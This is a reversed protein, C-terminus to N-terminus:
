YTPTATPAGATQADVSGVVIDVGVKTADKTGVVTPAINTAGYATDGSTHKSMVAFDTDTADAFMVIGSSAKFSAGAITTTTENDIPSVAFASGALFILSSSVIAIHLLSKKM